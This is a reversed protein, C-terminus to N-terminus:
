KLVSSRIISAGFERVRDATNGKTNVKAYYSYHKLVQRYLPWDDRHIVYGCRTYGHQEVEGVQILGDVGGDYNYFRKLALGWYLLAERPPIQFYRIKNGNFFWILHYHRNYSMNQETVWVYHPGLGHNNLRRRYEEIFYQFCSNDPTSLVEEPFRIVM